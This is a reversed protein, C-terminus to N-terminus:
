YLLRPIHPVVFFPQDSYDNEQCETLGQQWNICIIKDKCQLYSSVSRQWRRDSGEVREVEELENVASRLERETLPINHSIKYYFYGDFDKNIDPCSDMTLKSANSEREITENNKYIIRNNLRNKKM